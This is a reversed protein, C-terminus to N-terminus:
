DFGESSDKSIPTLIYKLTSFLIIFDQKLSYNEIYMIDLKAKDCSSSNYKGMLQAYGTLGAKVKTRLGFEIMESQYKAALEPREPRPGVWSMEGKLINLLQPLEDLRYRRLFRGIPTIRPDDKKSLQIQGNEEANMIMSRFKYITFVKSDRTLRQQKYIIPGHDSLKIALPIILFLPFTLIFIVCTLALDMLRKWFRQEITLGENDIMSMPTDILHIREASSILIDTLELSVYVRISKQFCTTLIANRLTNDVAYLIVSQYPSIRNILDNLSGNAQISEQISFVDKRRKLKEQFSEIPVDGYVLITKHPQFIGFYIRNCLISWFLAVGLQIFTVLLFAFPTLLTRNILSAELYTLLNVLILTLIQSYIIESVTKFGIRYADYLKGFSYYTFAYVLVWLILGNRYFPSYDLLPNYFVIWTAIFLIAQILIISYTFLSLVLAKNLNLRNM